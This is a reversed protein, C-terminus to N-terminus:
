ALIGDEENALKSAIVKCILPYIESEEATPDEEGVMELLISIWCYQQM